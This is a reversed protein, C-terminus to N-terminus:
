RNACLLVHSPPPTLFPFRMVFKMITYRTGRALPTVKKLESQESGYRMNVCKVNGEEMLLTETDFIHAKTRKANPLPSLFHLM